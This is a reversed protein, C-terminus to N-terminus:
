LDFLSRKQAIAITVYYGFYFSPDTFLNEIKDLLMMVDNYEKLAEAVEDQTDAYHLRNKFYNKRWVFASYFLAYREDLDKNSTDILFSEMQINKFKAKYLMSYIKRGHYRDSVHSVTATKQIIEYIVEENPYAIKLADDCTRIYIYGDNCLYKWLKKVVRASNSMHHLSLACYILNFKEVSHQKMISQLQEEWNSDEFDLLEACMNEPAKENFGDICEQYKDVGILNVQTGFTGFVSFTVNGMSCGVDLVYSQDKQNSVLPAILLADKKSEVKGQIALRKREDGLEYTVNYHFSSGKLEKKAAIKTSTVNFYSKIFDVLADIGNDKKLFVQLSRITRPFSGLDETDLYSILQGKKRDSLIDNYFSDWEYRVWNSNCNEPSTSVVILLTADDLYSDILQKYDAQGIQILSKDSFFVKIGHQKLRTYVDKAMYYDLLVKGNEGHYKYSIFVQTKNMIEM